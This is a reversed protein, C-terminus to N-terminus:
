SNDASDSESSRDGGAPDVRRMLQQCCFPIPEGDKIHSIKKCVDCIYMFVQDSM